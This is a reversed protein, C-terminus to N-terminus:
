SAKRAVRIFYQAILIFISAVISAVIGLCFGIWREKSANAKARTEQASFLAEVTQKNASVLPELKQKEERLSALSQENNLMQGKQFEIFGLLQKLNTETQDLQRIQAKFDPNESLGAQRKDLSQHNAIISVVVGIVAIVISIISTLKPAKIYAHIWAEAAQKAIPNSLSDIIRDAKTMNCQRCAAVLNSRDITGGKRLPIKHDITAISENLDVGCYECKWGAEDLVQQKLKKTIRMNNRPEVSRDTLQNLKKM